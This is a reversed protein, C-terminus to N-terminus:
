KEEETYDVYEGEDKTFIKKNADEPNRTDIVKEDDGYSNHKGHREGNNGNQKNFQNMGNRFLNLIRFAFILIFLFLAIFLMLIFKFIFM